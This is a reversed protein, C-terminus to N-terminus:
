ALRLRGTSNQGTFGMELSSTGGVPVDTKAPEAQFYKLAGLTSDFAPPPSDSSLLYTMGFELLKSDTPSPLFPVWLRYHFFVTVFALYIM